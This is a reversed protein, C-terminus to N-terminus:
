RSTLVVRNVTVWSMLSSWIRESAALSPQKGQDAVVTEQAVRLHQRGVAVLRVEFASVVQELADLVGGRHQEVIWGPDLGQEAALEQGKAAIHPEMASQQNGVESTQVTIWELLM